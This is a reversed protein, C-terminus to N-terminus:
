VLEKRQRADHLEILRALEGALERAIEYTVGIQAVRKQDIFASFWVVEKDAHVVLVPEGAPIALLLEAM